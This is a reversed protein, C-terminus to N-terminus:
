PHSQVWEDQVRQAEEIQDTNMYQAVTDRDKIAHKDHQSAAINFWMYAKITDKPVGDGLLYAFGLQDAADPNHHEAAKRWWRIATTIDKPVGFGGYYMSGLISEARAYGQDAAKNLWKIAEGYNKPVGVGVYYSTGLNYQAEASGKDAVARLETVFSSEGITSFEAMAPLPFMMGLCLIFRIVYQNTSHIMSVVGMM